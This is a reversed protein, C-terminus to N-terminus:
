HADSKNYSPCFLRGYAVQDHGALAIDDLHM